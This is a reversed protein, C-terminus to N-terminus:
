MRQLSQCPLDGGKTEPNGSVALYMAAADERTLVDMEEACRGALALAAVAAQLEAPTPAASFRVELRAAGNPEGAARVFRVDAALRLLLTAVAERVAAPYGGPPLMEVRVAPDPGIMAARPGAGNADVRFRGDALLRGPMGTEALTREVDWPEARAV